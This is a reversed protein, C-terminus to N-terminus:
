PKEKAISYEGIFSAPGGPADGTWVGGRYDAFVGPRGPILLPRVFRADFAAIRDARGSWMRRNLSEVTRAM